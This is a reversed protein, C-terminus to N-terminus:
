QKALKTNASFDKDMDQALLDLPAMSDPIPNDITEQVEVMVQQDSEVHATKAVPMTRTPGTVGGGLMLVAFVILAAASAFAMWASSRRRGSGIRERIAARQRGWFWDPRESEAHITERFADAWTRDEPKLEFEEEHKM